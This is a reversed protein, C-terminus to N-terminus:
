QTLGRNDCRVRAPQDRRLCAEGRGHLSRNGVSGCASYLLRGHWHGNSRRMNWGGIGRDVNIARAPLFDRRAVAGNGGDGCTCYDVRVGCGVGRFRVRAGAARARCAHDARRCGATGIGHAVGHESPGRQLLGGVCFCDARDHWLSSELVDFKRCTQHTTLFRHPTVFMAM